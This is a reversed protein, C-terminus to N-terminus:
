FLHSPSRKIIEICGWTQPKNANIESLMLAAACDHSLVSHSLTEKTSSQCMLFSPRHKASFTTIAQVCSTQKASSTTRLSVNGGGFRIGRPLCAIDEIRLCLFEEFGDM